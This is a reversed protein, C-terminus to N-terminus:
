VKKQGRLLQESYEDVLIIIEEEAQAGATIINKSLIVKAEGTFRTILVQDSGAMTNVMLTILTEIGNEFKKNITDAHRKIVGRVLDVPMLKGASKNLLLLKQQKALELNEIELAKKQMDQDLRLKSIAAAEAIIIEKKRIEVPTPKPKENGKTPRGRKIPEKASKDEEKEPKPNNKAELFARRKELFAVNIPDNPDICRPDDGPIYAIKHRRMYTIIADQRDNCLEAFEKRTLLTM